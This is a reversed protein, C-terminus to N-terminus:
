IVTWEPHRKQVLRGVVDELELGRELLEGELEEPVYQGSKEAYVSFLSRYPHEGFLAAVVSATLYARRLALWEERSAIPFREVLLQRKTLTDDPM